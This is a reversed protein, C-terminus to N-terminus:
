EESVAVQPGECKIMDIFICKKGMIRRGITKGTFCVKEPKIETEDDM